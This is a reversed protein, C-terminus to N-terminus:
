GYKPLAPPQAYTQTIKRHIATDWDPHMLDYHNILLALIDNINYIYQKYDRVSENRPTLYDVVMNQHTPLTFDPRWISRQGHEYLLTPQHYLFPIGYNDLMHGITRHEPLEYAPEAQYLPDKLMTDEIHPQM